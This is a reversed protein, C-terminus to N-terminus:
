ETNSSAYSVYQWAETLVSPQCQVSRLYFWWCDDVKTFSQTDVNEENIFGIVRPYSLSQISVDINSLYCRIFFIGRVSVCLFRPKGTWNRFNRVEAM